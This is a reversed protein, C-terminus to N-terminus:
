QSRGARVTPSIAPHDLVHPRFANKLSGSAGAQPTSEVPGKRITRFVFFLFASIFVSYVLVFAILSSLLVNAPVPSVADRTHLVGYIVWPQRGTEAVYWGGLTAFIGAPTMFVLFRLFWRTTFLRGRLRLWLSYAATAFMTLAIFYMIRFAWFVWAMRPQNETPTNKL